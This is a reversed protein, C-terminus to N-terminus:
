PTTDLSLPRPGNGTSEPGPEGLRDKPKLPVVDPILGENDSYGLLRLRTARDQTQLFMASRSQQGLLEQTFRTEETTVALAWWAVLFLSPWFWCVARAAPVGLLKADGSQQRRILSIALLLSAIVSLISGGILVVAFALEAPVPNWSPDRAILVAMALGGGTLPLGLGLVILGLISQWTWRGPAQCVATPAAPIRQRWLSDACVLCAGFGTAVPLGVMGAVLRTGSELELGLLNSGRLVAVMLFVPPLIFLALPFAQDVRQDSGPNGSGFFWPVAIWLPVAVLLALAILGLSAPSLTTTATTLISLGAFFLAALHAAKFRFILGLILVLNLVASWGSSSHDFLKWVGMAALVAVPLWLIRPVSM